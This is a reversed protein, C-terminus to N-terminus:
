YLILKKKKIEVDKEEVHGWGRDKKGRGKQGVLQGENFSEENSSSTNESHSRRKIEAIFWDKDSSDEEM